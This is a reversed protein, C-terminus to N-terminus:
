LKLVLRVSCAVGLTQLVCLNCSFNISDLNMPARPPPSCSYAKAGRKGPFDSIKKAIHPFRSSSNKWTTVKQRSKERYPSGKKPKGRRGRFNSCTGM